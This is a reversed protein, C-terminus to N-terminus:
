PLFWGLGFPSSRNCSYGTFIGHSILQPLHDAAVGGAASKLVRSDLGVVLNHLGSTEPRADPTTYHLGCWADLKGM